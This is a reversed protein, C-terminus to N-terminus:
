NKAKAEVAKAPSSVLWGFASGLLAGIVTMCTGATAISVLMGALVFARAFLTAEVASGTLKHLLSIAGYGGLYFAPLIGVVVWALLGIGAGIKAGTRVSENKM